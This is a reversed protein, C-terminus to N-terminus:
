ILNNMAVHRRAHCNPCLVDCKAIEARILTESYHLMSAVTYKKQKPDRHHFHLILPEQLGCDMCGKALSEAWIARAKDARPDGM